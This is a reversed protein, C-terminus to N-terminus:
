LDSLLTKICASLNHVCKFKCKSLSISLSIKNDKFIM